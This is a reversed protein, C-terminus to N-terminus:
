QVATDSPCSTNGSSCGSVGMINNYNACVAVGVGNYLDLRYGSIDGGIDNALLGNGIGNIDVYVGRGPIINRDRALTSGAQVPSGDAGTISSM